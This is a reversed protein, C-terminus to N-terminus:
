IARVNLVAAWGGRQFEVGKEAIMEMASIDMHM